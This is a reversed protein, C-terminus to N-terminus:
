WGEAHGEECRRHPRRRKKRGPLEMKPMSQGTCGSDRRQECGFWRLRAERVKGRFSDVQVTGRIYENTIKNMRSVGLSFTLMELEAEQRKTLATKLGYIM